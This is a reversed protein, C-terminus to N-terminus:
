AVLLLKEDSINALATPTCKFGEDTYDCDFNVLASDNSKAEAFLGSYLLFFVAIKM